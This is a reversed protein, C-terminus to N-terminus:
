PVGADTKFQAVAETVFAALNPFLGPVHDYNQQSFKDPYDTFGISGSFVVQQATGDAAVVICITVGNYTAPM